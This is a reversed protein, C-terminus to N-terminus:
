AARQKFQSVLARVVQVIQEQQRPPLTSVEEFLKGAKGIPGRKSSRAASPANLIEEVTVGLAKALKPIVSSRPPSDSLEWNAINQQSEGVLKALEAQTLGAATRLAALRAGQPPRIRKLPRPM